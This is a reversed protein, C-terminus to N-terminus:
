SGTESFLVVWFHFINAFRFWPECFSPFLKWFRNLVHIQSHCVRTVQSFRSNILPFTWSRFDWSLVLACVNSSCELWSVVSGFADFWPARHEEKERRLL